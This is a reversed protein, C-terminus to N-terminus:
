FHPHTMFHTSIAKLTATKNKHVETNVLYKDFNCCAGILFRLSCLHQFAGKAIIEGLQKNVQRQICLSDNQGSTLKM